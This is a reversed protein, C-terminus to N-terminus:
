YDEDCTYCHNGDTDGSGCYPCDHDISGTSGSGELHSGLLMAINALIGVVIAIIGAIINGDQILFIGIAIGLLAPFLLGIFGIALIFALAGLVYKM